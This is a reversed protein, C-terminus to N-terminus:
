RADPMRLGVRLVGFGFFLALGCGCALWALAADRRDPFCRRALSAYAAGVIACLAILLAADAVLTVHAETAMTQGALTRAALVYLPYLPSWHLPLAAAYGVRQIQDALEFYAISDAGPQSDAFVLLQTGAIALTLLIFGTLLAPTSRTM